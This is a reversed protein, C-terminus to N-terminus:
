GSRELCEDLTGYLWQADKNRPCMCYEGGGGCTKGPRVVVSTVDHVYPLVRCGHLGTRYIRYKTPLEYRTGSKAHGLATSTCGASNGLHDRSHSYRRKCHHCAVTVLFPCDHILFAGPNEHSIPPISVATAM